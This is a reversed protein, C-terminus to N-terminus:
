ISLLDILHKDQDLKAIIQIEYSFDNAYRALTRIAWRFRELDFMEIPIDLLLLIQGDKDLGFKVWYVQDNLELLYRYLAERYSSTQLDLGHVESLLPMQFYAWFSNFSLFVEFQRDNGKYGLHWHNNEQKKIKWNLHKIALFYSAITVPSFFEIEGKGIRQAQYTEFETGTAIKGQINNAVRVIANQYRSTYVSLAEVAKCCYSRELSTLPLELQLLFQGADDLSYKCMFCLRCLKLIYEYLNANVSWSGTIPTAFCLWHPNSNVYLKNKGRELQWKTKQRTSLMWGYQALCDLSDDLQDIKHIMM